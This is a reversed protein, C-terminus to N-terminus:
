ECIDYIRIMEQDTLSDEQSHPPKFGARRWSRTCQIAALLQSGIKRRRPELLDDLESFLREFQCSSATITLLDIALRSLNPYRSRLSIWYKIPNSEQEFQEKTWAPEYRRWRNLEDIKSIDMENAPDVNVLAAIADDIGGSRPPRPCTTPLSIPKYRAWLRQLEAENSVIWHHKERWSNSCYNKYYPHLCTASYYAPSADLKTYYANAKRWAANFNIALHDEPAETHANFNVHDYTRLMAEYAGIVYEFVPIVEFTLRPNGM